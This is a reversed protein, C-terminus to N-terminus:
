RRRRIHASSRGDGRRISARRGGGGSPAGRSARLAFCRGGMGTSRWRRPSGVLHGRARRLRHGGRAGAGEPGPCPSRGRDPRASRDTRQPLGPAIWDEYGGLEAAVGAADGLELGPSEGRSSSCWGRRRGSTRWRSVSAARTARAFWRWATSHQRGARQQGRTQSRRRQWRGAARRGASRARAMRRSSCRERGACMSRPRRRRRTATTSARRRFGGSRASCSGGRRSHGNGAGGRDRRGRRPGCARGRVADRDDDHRPARRDRPLREAEITEAESPLLAVELRKTM